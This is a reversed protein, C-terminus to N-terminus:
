FCSVLFTGPFVTEFASIQSMNFDSMAYRPKWEPNWESNLKIACIFLEKLEDTLLISAVVVYGVNTPVSLVFLPMDYVNTNCTSDMLTIENGYRCLMRKKGNVKILLFLVLNM